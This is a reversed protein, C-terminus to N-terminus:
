LVSGVGGERFSRLLQIVVYAVIVLLYTFLSSRTSKKMHLIRNM